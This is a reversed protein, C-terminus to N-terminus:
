HDHFEFNVGTYLTPRIEISNYETEDKVIRGSLYLYQYIYRALSYKYDKYFQRPNTDPKLPFFETPSPYVPITLNDLVSLRILFPYVSGMPEVWSSSLIPPDISFDLIKWSSLLYLITYKPKRYRPVILFMQNSILPKYEVWYRIIDSIIYSTSM